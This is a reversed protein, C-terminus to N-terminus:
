DLGYAGLKKLYLKINNKWRHRSRRLQRKGEPKGMLIRYANRKKGIIAVNGAWRMRRSKIITIISPLYHLNHLEVNRM